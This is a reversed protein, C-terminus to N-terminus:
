IGPEGAGGAAGGGGRAGGTLLLYRPVRRSPLICQCLIRHLDLVYLKSINVVQRISRFAPITVDDCCENRVYRPGTPALSLMYRLSPFFIIFLVSRASASAFSSTSYPPLLRPWMLVRLKWTMGAGVCDHSM